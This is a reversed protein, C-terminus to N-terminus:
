AFVGFSSISFISPASLVPIPKRLISQTDNGWVSILVWLSVPNGRQIVSELVQVLLVFVTLTVCLLYRMDSCALHSVQEMLLSPEWSWQWPTARTRTTSWPTAMAGVAMSSGSGVSCLAMPWTWGCTRGCTVSPASGVVASLVPLFLLFTDPLLWDQIEWWPLDFWGVCGAWLWALSELASSRGKTWSGQLSDPLRYLVFRIAEGPPFEFVM